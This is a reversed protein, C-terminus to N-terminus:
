WDPEGQPNPNGGPGFPWPKPQFDMPIVLSAHLRRSLWETGHQQCAPLNGHKWDFVDGVPESNCGTGDEARCCWTIDRNPNDPHSREHAPVHNM